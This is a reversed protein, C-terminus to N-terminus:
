LLALSSEAFHKVDADDLSVAYLLPEREDKSMRRAAVVAYKRIQSENSQLAAMVGEPNSADSGLLWQLGRADKSNPKSTKLFSLAAELQQRSARSLFDMTKWRVNPIPDNVLNVASALESEASPGAWLLICDIVYFRIRWNQHKVLGSVVNLLPEGKKGLESAIWAGVEAIDQNQNLLFPRLNSLPYGQHFEGLLDNMWAGAVPAKPNAELQETLKEAQERNYNTM